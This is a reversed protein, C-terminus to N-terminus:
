LNSVSIGFEYWPIVVQIEGSAYPGVAYPPYCLVIGEESYSVNMDLSICELFSNEMEKEREPTGDDSEYYLGSDKRWDAMSYRLALAKFEEEDGKFFDTIEAKKGSKLDFLYNFSSGMGHAGGYYYYDGFTVAVHNKGVRSVDGFNVSYTYGQGLNEKFWNVNNEDEGNEVIDNLANQETDKGNKEFADDIRQLAENLKDANEIDENFRFSQFEGKYYVFGDETTKKDVRATVIGFDAFTEHRELAGSRQETKEPDDILVSRWVIDGKRGDEGKEDFVLYYVRDNKVTFADYSSNGESYSGYTCNVNPPQGVHIINETELIGNEINKIPIRKYDRGTEIDNEYTKEYFYVYGNSLGAVGSSEAKGLSFECSKGSRVNYLVFEQNRDPDAGEGYYHRTKILYDPGFYKVEGDGTDGKFSNVEKGADNFVYIEGADYDYMYICGTKEMDRVIDVGGCLKSLERGNYIKLKQKLRDIDPDSDFADGEPDYFYTVNDGTERDYGSYYLKGDLVSINNVYMDSGLGIDTYGPNLDRDYFNIVQKGDDNVIFFYHYPDGTGYEINQNERGRFLCTLSGDDEIYFLNKNGYIFRDQFPYDVTTGVAAAESTDSEESTDSTEAAKEEPATVPESAEETEAAPEKETGAAAAEGAKEGGSAETERGSTGDSKKGCGAMVLVLILVPIICYLRKKM